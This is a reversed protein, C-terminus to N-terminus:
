ENVRGIMDVPNLTEPVLRLTVQSTKIADLQYMKVPKQLLALPAEISAVM